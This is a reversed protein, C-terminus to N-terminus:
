RGGPPALGTVTVRNLVSTGANTSGALSVASTLPRWTTMLACGTSPPRDNQSFRSKPKAGTNNNTPKKM